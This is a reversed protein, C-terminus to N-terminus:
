SPTITWSGEWKGIQVFAPGKLPVKTTYSGIENVVLDITDGVTIWVQFNGPGKGTLEINATAEPVGVVADGKGSMPKGLQAVPLSGFDTITATWAANATVKLTTTPPGPTLNFWKTGHYPGIANILLHEMGDTELFVNSSCKPCDLTLFAPEGPPWATTFSGNGKGSHTEAPVAAPPPKGGSPSTTPPAGPSGTDDALLMGSGTGMDSCATLLTALLLGAMVRRGNSTM